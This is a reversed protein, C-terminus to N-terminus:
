GPLHGPPWASSLQEISSHFKVTLSDTEGKDDAPEATSAEPPSGWGHGETAPHLHPFESRSTGVPVNM